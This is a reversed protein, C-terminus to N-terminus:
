KKGKGKQYNEANSKIKDNSKGSVTSASEGMGKGVEGAAESFATKTQQIASADTQEPHGGIWRMIKDPVAYILSFCTNTMGIVFAAYTFLIIVASFLTQIDITSFVQLMGADIIAVVANYLRGSLLFGFIMLIPRLFINSLIMLATEVKGLEDGAPMILGLAILPAAIVAEVVILLWGLAGVTFIMFPILPAYIALGAGITWVLAIIPIVMTLVTMLMAILLSGPGTTFPLGLGVAFGIATVIGFLTIWTIEMSLMMSRGFQAHALLVDGGEAGANGNMTTILQNVMNQLPAAVAALIPDSNGQSLVATPLEGAGSAQSDLAMYVSGTALYKSLEALQTSSLSLQTAYNGLFTFNGNISGNICASTLCQLPVDPKPAEYISAYNKQTLAKNLVFYYSGAIIWGKEEGQKIASRMADDLGTSEIPVILGSMLKQYADTAAEFYGPDGIPTTTDQIPDITGTVIQEALPQLISLMSSLALMKTDYILAASDSLIKYREQESKGALNSEGFDDATATGTVAFSGCTAYQFAQGGSQEEKNGFYMNGSLTVNKTTPTAGAPGPGNPAPDATVIYNKVSNGNNKLWSQTGPDATQSFQQMSEMCIAIQLLNNAIIAANSSLTTSGNSNAAPLAGVTASAGTKLGELTINWVQDAAGIGQIIIWVVTSQILSYGTGPTPVMLGMGIISRMPIWIASWKKGMAAGEQATNIVSLVVVYSLVASGVVVLIFNFKEMIESMIPNPAGGLYITGVNSGFILGLIRVSEDTPPPDFVGAFVTPSLLILLIYWFYKM